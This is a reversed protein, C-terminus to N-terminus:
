EELISILIARVLRDNLLRFDGLPKLSSLEAHDNIKIGENYFVQAYGHMQQNQSELVIWKYSIGIM